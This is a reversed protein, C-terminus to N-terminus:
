GPNNLDRLCNGLAPRFYNRFHFQSLNTNITIKLFIISTNVLNTSLIGPLNEMCFSKNNENKQRKTKKIITKNNRKNQQMKKARSTKRKMNIKIKSTSM